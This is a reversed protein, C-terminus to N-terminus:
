PEHSGTEPDRGREDLRQALVRMVALAVGPRERLMSEFERHGFRITRVPGDAVLSAVRPAQTIISMEGVVDGASRRALERESGRRDRVVRITGDVVIHLEEGAEGEDAILEGDAYGREEALRAVRELDAPSLDAFLSVKRLFLVRELDGLAKATEPMSGGGRRARVLEACRRILEDEHELARTLWDDLRTSATAPEWLSVLPRLLKPDGSAELTELANAVQAPAGDLNEIATEMEARRTAVLTAAWLASRAIRRGRDIVADRLLLDADGDVPIVAALDRDGAARTAASRVFARVREGETEVRLRRVAEVAVEATSPDDLAELVRDFAGGGAVGLARGAAERVMPDPDGLGALAPELARGADAAALRELAAARVEGAPDDLLDAAIAAVPTPALELQEVVARRVAADPDALLERLRRAPRDDAAAGSLRAAAAAAVAPDADGSARVLADRGPPPSPDVARAAALRVLPDPDDLGRAVEAPRLEPALDALLQFALRRERVDASAAADTLARVSDADAALSVPAYPVSPREFVQPRGSRLADALAGTYSRRIGVMAAITLASAVIGVVAFQRPTLADQGVLAVVGAIVTGIQTPGGNLFARTQDRHSEPTVNVLTEWGPSAVGQLWTGVVFRLAVLMAFGSEVLLVGFAATYLIPLVMAVAALGFWLLLRNTVLMSVVFAAATVGAWFLGFFGALDEADPFRESAARAYPLYLSYFLVSFLVASVAMWRLLRSRRVFHFGRALDALVSTPARRGAAPVTPGLVLRSLVFAAVLGGAWVLLLNEAGIASALPRTSLGGVVSGLIGGAAFIPFLRKAQRTDVVAGATGWLFIGQVLIGLGVTVWLASYVWRPDAQVVARGVLVLAALALPAALYARRPGLRAFAGTIGLMAAFTVGGQLLYVVPLSRAGVREFFLADVGSEGITIAGMAVLSLAVMLLVTRGEGRRVRLLREVPGM